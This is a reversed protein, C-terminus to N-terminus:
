RSFGTGNWQYRVAKQSGWPLLLPEFGGVPGTDQNWPYTKETWERAQGPGLQIGVGRGASVFRLDGSVKKSGVARGIEAAFVRRLADGQVQFVLFVERDVTGGGAEKPANAHILGKVLIEAKGDGTLDRASVETIDAGAAFQALNLYSYGTGGKFGKGFIVLDRDHLLVREIEGSGSVDATFDFRARGSAGRDKKYLAHVQELLQSASPGAPKPKPATAAPPPEPAAPPPTAAQSDERAKQYVTAAYKYLQAKITGWPLLAPDYSTQIPQDYNGAHYGKAEGPRIMIGLKGGDAVFDVENIVSGKETVVAVEHQFIPTPTEGRGFQLVQMVERYRDKSGYRKRLILEHQGDGTLDRTEFSPMMGGKASAETDSFYYQTGRRFGPGLVVLYRDYVMVREKLGDGAVDAILNYSPAGKLGKQKMLGDALAQEPETSLSPLSGYSQAAATGAIAEVTSSADADHAFLA